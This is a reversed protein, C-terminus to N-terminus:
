GWCRRNQSGDVAVGSGFVGCCKAVGVAKGSSKLVDKLEFAM